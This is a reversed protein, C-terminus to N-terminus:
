ANDCCEKMSLANSPPGDPGAHESLTQKSQLDQAVGVQSLPIVTTASHPQVDVKHYAGRAIDYM